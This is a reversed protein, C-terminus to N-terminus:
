RKVDVVAEAAAFTAIIQLPETAPRERGTRLDRIRVERETFDFVLMETM